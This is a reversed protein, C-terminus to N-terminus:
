TVAGEDPEIFTRGRNYHPVPDGGPLPVLVHQWPEHDHGDRVDVAKKDADSLDGYDREIAAIVIFSSPRELEPFAQDLEDFLIVAREQWAVPMSQMMSRHLVLYNSYTLGFWLHIPGDLRLNREEDPTVDGGGGM